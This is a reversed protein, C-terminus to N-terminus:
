AQAGITLYRLFNGARHFKEPIAEYLRHHRRNRNGLLNVDIELIDSMDLVDLVVVVGDFAGDNVQRIPVDERQVVFLSRLRQILKQLRVLNIM